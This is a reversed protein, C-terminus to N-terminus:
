YEFVQPNPEVCFTGADLAQQKIRTHIATKSLIIHTLYSAATVVGFAFVTQRAGLRYLHCIILTGTCLVSRAVDWVFQISQRELISLTPIVPWSVFGLFQVGILLQAYVGAEHWSAGFVFGFLRPAILLIALSPLAAIWALRKITNTFLRNLAQPNTSALRAAESSYVQSVAQGILAIPVAMTRDVLAYWGLVETGYWGAILFAPVAAGAMNVVAAFMLVLPFRRYRIAATRLGELSVARFDNRNLRWASRALSLSGTLRGVTDGLLLGLVGIKFIGMTIQIVLRSASQALKTQSVQLYSKNRVAWHTLVQYVGIGLTGLPLLWLYPQMWGTTGELNSLIFLVGGFILSMALAILLGVVAVNAAVRNDEPLLVAIEYRLSVLAGAVGLISMFVLLQGFQETTYLRTLVPSLLVTIGQGLAAGTALVTVNQGFSNTPSIHSKLSNIFKM